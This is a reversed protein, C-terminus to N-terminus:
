DKHGARMVAEVLARIGADGLARIENGAADSAIKDGNGEGNIVYHGDKLSLFFIFPGAPNGSKAVVAASTRDSCGLVLWSNAGFTREIPGTECKMPEPQLPAPPSVQSIGALALLLAGIV